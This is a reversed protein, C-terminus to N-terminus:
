TARLIEVPDARMARRAPAIAAVIGVGILVAEAVVLSIADVPYVEVLVAKLLFAAAMAGFAGIGIGALLMVLGDRLVMRYLMREEAGLAMRVAFERMRQAVAYALVGYLGLAALALGVVGMGVFVKALFVRSIIERDRAEMFSSVEIQSRVAVGQLARGLRWAVRPDPTAARVLLRTVRAPPIPRSVWLRPEAVEDSSSTLMPTRAVGVIRVWPARSAPGGLKVMHGLPDRGPYLRAAAVASLVAVGEGVADGPEFDRGKLVPLGHVRLYSPSVVPCERMVALRTSDETLEASVAGGPALVGSQLAADRVGPLARAALLVQEPDPPPATDRSAMTIRATLLTATDFNYTQGRLQQVSRLLLAGGMLLVLALGVEAVVLPSYRGRHRGTTTGAADKLPDTLDVKSVVEVAPALGFLGAATAAALAALGFVRWSLQPQLIGVWSVETPMRSELVDAGWWAM